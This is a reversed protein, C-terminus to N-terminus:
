FYDFHRFRGHCLRDARIRLLLIGKLVFSGLRSQDISAPFGGVMVKRGSQSKQLIPPDGQNKGKWLPPSRNVM